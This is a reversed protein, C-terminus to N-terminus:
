IAETLTWEIRYRLQPASSSDATIEVYDAAAYATATLATVQPNSSPTLTQDQSGNKRLKAAVNSTSEANFAYRAANAGGPMVFRREQTATTANTSTNSPRMCPLFANANSEPDGAFVASYTMNADFELTVISSGPNNAGTRQMAVKDAAAYSTGATNVRTATGSTSISQATSGNKVIAITSSASFTSFSFSLDACAQGVVHETLQNLSASTTASNIGTAVYYHNLTSASGGWALSLGRTSAAFLTGFLREDSNASVAAGLTVSLTDNAALSLPPFTYRRTMGSASSTTFSAAGNKRLTYSTSQNTEAAVTLAVLESACTIRHATRYDDATVFAVTNTADHIVYRNTTAKNTDGAWSLVQVGLAPSQYSAHRVEHWRTGDTYYTAAQRSALSFRIGTTPKVTLTAGYGSNAVLFFPSSASPTPLNVTRNAGGCDLIQVTDDSDTLTKDASLTEVNVGWATKNPKGGGGGSAAAWSPVGSALTLVDGDSGAALKALTNPGSAYLLDGAAWSTQDTGGATAGLAAYSPDAGTGGSVLPLGATGPVLTTWATSGRYFVSGRTSGIDNLLTEPAKWQAKTGGPTVTSRLYHGSTGHSILEHDLSGTANSLSVSTSGLISGGTLYVNSADQVALTGLGLTTRGAAADADDVLSRGFSTLTTTSVTDAGSFYTLVDAGTTAGALATLTADLPQYLSSLDPIDAAVMARFTPDASLAAPSAPGCLFRNPLQVGFRALALTGTANAINLYYSGEQDDLLDANLNAVKTTSAVTLPATGTAVDAYLKEARVEYSGVDWNASLARTGDARLYQAHDDNTLGTLSGHASVGATVDVSTTGNWYYLKDDDSDVWLGRNLVALESPRNPVPDFIVAYPDLVDCTVKGAVVESTNPTSGNDVVLVDARIKAVDLTSSPFGSELLTLQTLETGPGLLNGTSGVLDTRATQARLDLSGTLPSTTDTFEIQEGHALDGASNVLHHRLKGAGGLLMAVGDKVRLAAKALTGFALSGPLVYSASGAGDPLAAVGRGQVHEEHTIAAVDGASVYDGTDTAGERTAKELSVLPAETHVDGVLTREFRHAPSGLAFGRLKAVARQFVHLAPPIQKSDDADVLEQGVFQDAVGLPESGTTLARNTNVIGLNGAYFRYRGGVLAAQVIETLGNVQRALLALTAKPSFMDGIVGIPSPVRAIGPQLVVDALARQQEGTLQTLDPVRVSLKSGDELVLAVKEGIVFKAGDEPQGDKGKPEWRVGPPDALPCGKVVIGRGGLWEVKRATPDPLGTGPVYTDQGPVFEEPDDAIEPPPEDFLRRQKGDPPPKQEEEDKEEDKDDKDGGGGGGPVFPPPNRPPPKPPEPPPEPPPPPPPEDDGLLEDPNVVFFPAWFVSRGAGYTRPDKLLAEASLLTRTESDYPVLSGFLVKHRPDGLVGTADGSKTRGGVLNMFRLPMSLGSDTAVGVRSWDAFHATTHVAAPVLGLQGEEDFESRPLYASTLVGDLRALGQLTLVLGDGRLSLLGTPDPRFGAIRVRTNGKLDAVGAPSILRVVRLLQELHGAVPRGEKDYLDGSTVRTSRVSPGALLQLGLMRASWEWNLPNAKGPISGTLGEIGFLARAAGDGPRGASAPTWIM